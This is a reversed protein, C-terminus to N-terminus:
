RLVYHGHVWIRQGNRVVWHGPRWVYYSRGVYYGPGRTYYPRDNIDVVVSGGYGYGPRAYGYGPGVYPGGYYPRSAYYGGGAYAPPGYYDACGTLVAAACCLSLIFRGRANALTLVAQQLYRTIGMYLLM